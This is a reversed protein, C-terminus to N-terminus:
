VIAELGADRGDVEQGEGGRLVRWVAEQVCVCLVDLAEDVLHSVPIITLLSQENIM